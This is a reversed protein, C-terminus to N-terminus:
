RRIWKVLNSKSNDTYKACIFYIGSPIQSINVVNNKKQCIKAGTVSYIEIDSITKSLSSVQLEDDHQKIQLTQLDSKIDNLGSTFDGTYPTRIVIQGSLFYGFSNDSNFSFNNFMEMARGSYNTIAAVEWNLAGDVTKSVSVGSLGICSGLYGLSDGLFRIQCTGFYRAGYEDEGSWGNNANIDSNIMLGYGPYGGDSVIAYVKNSTISLSHVAYINYPTNQFVDFRQNIDDNVWDAGGNTTKLVRGYNGVIYGVSDRLKVDFLNVSDSVMKIAAWTKGADKSQVVLGSDGVAWINDLGSAAIAYINNTTGSTQQIWNVGADTTSLITGSEGVAFGTKHNVFVIDNLAKGTPIYQKNWTLAHDTSQAILGNYGVIYVTDLGQAYVKRLWENQMSNVYEWEYQPTQAKLLVPSVLLLITAIILLKTKM